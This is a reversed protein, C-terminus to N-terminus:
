MMVLPFRVVFFPSRAPHLDAAGELPEVLRATMQTKTM